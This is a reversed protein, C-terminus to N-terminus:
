NNVRKYRHISISRVETGEKQTWKHSHKLFDDISIVYLKGDRFKTYIMKVDHKIFNKLENCNLTDGVGTEGLHYFNTGFNFFPEKKLTIAVNPNGKNGIVIAYRNKNILHYNEWSYGIIDKLEKLIEPISSKLFLLYKEKM